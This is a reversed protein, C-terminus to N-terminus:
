KENTVKALPYPRLVGKRARIGIVVDYVQLPTPLAWVKLANPTIEDTYFQKLYAMCAAKADKGEAIEGLTLDQGSEPDDNYIETIIFKM